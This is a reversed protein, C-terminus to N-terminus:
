QNKTEINTKRNAAANLTEDRKLRNAMLPTKKRSNDPINFSRSFVLSKLLGPKYKEAILETNIIM